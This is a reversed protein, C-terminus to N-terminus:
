NAYTKWYRWNPRGKKRKTNEAWIGGKVWTSERASHEEPVACDANEASGSRSEKAGEGGDVRDTFGHEENHDGASEELPTKDKGTERGWGNISDDRQKLM